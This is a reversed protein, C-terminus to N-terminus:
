QQIREQLKRKLKQLQHRISFDIRRDGVKIVAGGILDPNESVSLIIEKGTKQRLKEKLEELYEDSPRTPFEASVKLRGLYNDAAKQFERRIEKFINTRKKKLLLLLFNVFIDSYEAEKAVKKIIEERQELSFLPSYFVHRLEPTQDLLQAFHAFERDLQEIKDEKKALEFTANAYRQALIEEHGKM